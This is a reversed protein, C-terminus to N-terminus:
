REHSSIIMIDGTPRTGPAAAVCLDRDRPDAWATVNQPFPIEISKAFVQWLGFGRECPMSM